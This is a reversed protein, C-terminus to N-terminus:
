QTVIHFFIFEPFFILKGFNCLPIACIDDNLDKDVTYCWPANFRGKVNRCYNRARSKSGEPFDNDTLVDYVQQHFISPICLSYFNCLPPKPLAKFQAMKPSRNTM